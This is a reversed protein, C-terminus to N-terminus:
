FNLIHFNAPMGTDATSTRQKNYIVYHISDEIKALFIRGEKILFDATRFFTMVIAKAGNRLKQAIM